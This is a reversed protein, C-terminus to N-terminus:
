IRGGSAVHQFASFFLHRNLFTKRYEEHLRNITWWVAGSISSAFLGVVFVQLCPITWSNVAFLVLVWPLLVGFRWLNRPGRAEIPEGDLWRRLDEALKGAGPYRNGPEKELCKLCITELDRPVTNRM